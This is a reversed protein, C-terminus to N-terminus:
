AGKLGAFERLHRKVTASEEISNPVRDLFQRIRRDTSARFSEKDEVAILSGHYLFAIRDAIRFASAMEHTIVLLTLDSLRKLFLLMEDLEAAVIPDLGASPEDLVLIQPDLALARAVAARKKMGGSLEEPMLDGAEGLGVQALKLYSIIQIVPEALTTLERLPLAVNERTSLSNFLAAEQFAVGMTRRIINLEKVSCQNIDIGQIYVAGSNPQELGIIQRLFTSKGAGSGGLLVMVEGRKVHLNIGELVPQEGYNVSVDHVSIVPDVM